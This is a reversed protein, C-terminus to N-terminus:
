GATKCLFIVPDRYRLFTEIANCSWPLWISTYEKRKGGNLFVLNSELPLCHGPPLDVTGESLGIKYRIVDYAGKVKECDNLVEVVSFRSVVSSCNFM